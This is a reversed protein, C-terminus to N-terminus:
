EAGTELEPNAYDMKKSCGPDGSLDGEESLRRDPVAETEQNGQSHRQEFTLM